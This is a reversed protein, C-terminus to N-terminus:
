VLEFHYVEVPKDEWEDFPDDKVAERAIAIADEWAKRSDWVALGMLVGKDADYLTHAEQMGPLGTLTASFRHMSEILDQEKGPKPRHVTVHFFM